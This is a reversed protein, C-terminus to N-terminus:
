KGSSERGTPLTAGEGVPEVRVRVVRTPEAELITLCMGAHTLTEGTEPIRGLTVVVFGGVTDYEDSEPLELGIEELEDNADDIHFRADLEASRAEADVEIEHVDEEDEYEDQIEGFVEEVIDEITVLGATGGYEDAVMAIHVKAALLETLLERVTKTEPVFTVPRLIERLTFVKGNREHNVIWRLLDKAYLVGVIKDLSEEYVPVRSHGHEDIFRMVADRDDTYELADVETRPTMVQEATTSRFEVVAEIMERETEDLRGGREGEEVVSLLEAEIEEHEDLAESGALRRVVEDIFRVIGRVPTLLIYWVRVPFSALIVTREGSHEAISYPIVVGLLWVMVSAFALGAVREVWTPDKVGTLAAIWLVATVVSVLHCVVRPLAVVAEHGEVDDLIAAVRAKVRSRGTRDALTELRSRSMYRLSHNVSAFVAGLILAALAIVFWLTASM